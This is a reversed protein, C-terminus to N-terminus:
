RKVAAAKVNGFNRINIVRLVLVSPFSLPPLTLSSIWAKKSPMM